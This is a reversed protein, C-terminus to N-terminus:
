TRDVKNNDASRKIVTDVLGSFRETFGANLVADVNVVWMDDTGFSRCKVADKTTMLIPLGDAFDLESSQFQHHDDFAHAIIDIDAARLQTFFRQPDGIAAIAHVKEGTFHSLPVARTEALNSVESTELHYGPSSNSLSIHSLAVLDVENLRSPRERLPGAPLCFGNGHMRNSDVVAIEIDRQLAYHQLGDDSLLIDVDDHALLYRGAAPRDAAIVVPAGTTQSILLPEDGVASADDDPLVRHPGEISGGYGRSIIGVKLQSDSLLRYLAIVLPTKGTGGISINGVIIVPVPLRFSQLIGQQYLFRRIAAILCYVATVPLLCWAIINQSYWFKPAASM